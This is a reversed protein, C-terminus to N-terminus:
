GPLLRLQPRRPEPPEPPAVTQDDIHGALWDFDIDPVPIHLAGTELLKTTGGSGIDVACVLRGQKRARKAADLSGSRERAEVVIVAKGLGTVIRNRAM